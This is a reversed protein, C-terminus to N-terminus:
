EWFDYVLVSQTLPLFFDVFKKHIPHPLYISDRDISKSFKMTLSHTYGKGLGEPSVNKGFNLQKVGPISQLNYAENTLENIVEGKIEPKLKILVMHVLMKDKGSDLASNNKYNHIFNYGVLLTGIYFVIIILLSLRDTIDLKLM